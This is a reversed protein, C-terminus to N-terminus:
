CKLKEENFMEANGLFVKAQVQILPKLQNDNRKKLTFTLSSPFYMCMMFQWTM